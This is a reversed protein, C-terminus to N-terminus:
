DPRGSIEMNVNNAEDVRRLFRKLYWDNLFLEYWVNQVNIIIIHTRGPTTWM